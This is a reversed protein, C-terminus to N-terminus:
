SVADLKGLKGEIMDAIQRLGTAQAQLNDCNVFRWVTRTLLGSPLIESIAVVGARGGDVSGIETFVVEATEHVIEDITKRQESSM